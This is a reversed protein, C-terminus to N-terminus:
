LKAYGQSAKGHINSCITVYDRTFLEIAFIELFSCKWWYAEM